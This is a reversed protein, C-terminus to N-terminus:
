YCKKIVSEINKKSKQEDKVPSAM